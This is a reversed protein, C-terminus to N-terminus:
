ARGEAPGLCRTAAGGACDRGDCCATRWFDRGGLGAVSGVRAGPTECLADPGEARYCLLDTEGYAALHDVVAAIQPAVKEIASNAMRTAPMERPDIVEGVASWESAVLEALAPAPLLLRSKGPTRVPRGDLQVEYGGDVQAVTVDAWFRKAVWETM